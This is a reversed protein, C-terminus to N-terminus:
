SSGPLKPKDKTTLQEWFWDVCHDLDSLNSPRDADPQDLWRQMVERIDSKNVMVEIIM